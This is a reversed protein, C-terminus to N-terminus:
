KYYIRGDIRLDIYEPKFSTDSKKSDLLIKLSDIQSDLDSNIAMIIKYNKDTYFEVDDIGDKTIIVKSINFMSITDSRVKQIADFYEKNIIQRDFEKEDEVLMIIYGSSKLPQGWLNMEDDFYKCKNEGVYNEFCWIGIAKKTTGSIDIAHFYKKNISIDKLLEFKNLIDTAIKNGNFFLINNGTPLFYLFRSQRYNDIEVSIKNALDQDLGNINVEDIQFYHSYLLLYGLALIIALISIILLFLKIIFSRRRKLALGDKYNTTKITSARM